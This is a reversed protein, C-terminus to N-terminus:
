EDKNKGKNNKKHFYNSKPAKNIKSNHRQWKSGSNKKNGEVKGSRTKQEQNIKKSDTSTTAPQNNGVQNNDKMKYKDQEVSTSAKDPTKTKEIPVNGNTVTNGSSKNESSISNSSLNMSGAENSSMSVAKSNHYSEFKKPAPKNGSRNENVSPKYMMLQGKESTAQGPKNSTAIKMVSLRHKTVREVDERAPGEFYNNTNNNITTNNIHTNHIITVNKTINNVVNINTTRNIVYNNINTQTIHEEPVFNWYRVPPNWGVSVNIHPALPAWGYYGGSRGWMVWAPAWEHGPLWMWGYADDFIWRGYHFTAWGWRYGSSWTWGYNTYVWHGNTAYPRFGVEVTPAWVYGYEPYDIWRGYPSLENYFGDYGIADSSVSVTTRSPGCGIMLLSAAIISFLTKM